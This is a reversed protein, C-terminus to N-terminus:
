ECELFKLDPRLIALSMQVPDKLAIVSRLMIVSSNRRTSVDEKLKRATGCSLQKWQATAVTSKKFYSVIVRCKRLLCSLDDNVALADTVVLNLTHVFCPVQRWPTQDRVAKMINAGNDTVVAVGKKQEIGWNGALKILHHALNM